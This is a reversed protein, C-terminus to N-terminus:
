VVGMKDRGEACCPLYLAGTYEGLSLLKLEVLNGLSSPITGSLHNGFLQLEELAVLQGIEAPIEGTLGCRCICLRRLTTLFCLQTPIPGTLGPTFRQFKLLFFIISTM